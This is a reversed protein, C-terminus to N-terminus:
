QKTRHSDPLSMNDPSERECELIAGLGGTQVAMDEGELLSVRGYDCGRDLGVDLIRDLRVVVSPLITKGLRKTEGM